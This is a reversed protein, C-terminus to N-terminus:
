QVAQGLTFRVVMASASFDMTPRGTLWELPGPSGAWAHGGNQVIIQTVPSRSCDKGSIMVATMGDDVTNALPQRETGKCGNTVLFNKFTAASSEVSGRRMRGGEMPVLTDATGVLNLLRTQSRSCDVPVPINAAVPAIGYPKISSGCAMKFSMHGGNSIGTFVIHAPDAIGRKVLDNVLATLFGVDDTDRVLKGRRNTRGDNWGKDIGNPYVVVIGNRNAIKHLGTLKRFQTATGFGGHLGVILPAPGSTKAPTELIYERTVGGVDITDAAASGCMFALFVVATGLRMMKEQAARDLSL